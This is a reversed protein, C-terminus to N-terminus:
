EAVPTVPSQTGHINEDSLKCAASWFFELEEQIVARQTEASCDSCIFTEAWVAGPVSLVSVGSLASGEPRVKSMDFTLIEPNNISAEPVAHVTLEALPSCRAQDFGGEASNLSEAVERSVSALTDQIEFFSSETNAFIDVGFMYDSGPMSIVPKDGVQNTWYPGARRHSQSILALEDVNWDPDFEASGMTLDEYAVERLGDPETQNCAILSVLLCTSLIGKNM